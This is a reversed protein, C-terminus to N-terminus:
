PTLILCNVNLYFFQDLKSNDVTAFTCVVEVSELKGIPEIENSSALSFVHTFTERMSSLSRSTESYILSIFLKKM